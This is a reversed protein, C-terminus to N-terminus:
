QDRTDTAEKRVIKLKSREDTRLKPDSVPCVSLCASLRVSPCVSLLRRHMIGEGIPASCLLTGNHNLHNFQVGLRLVSFQSYGNSRCTLWTLRLSTGHCGLGGRRRGDVGIDVVRTSRSSVVGL